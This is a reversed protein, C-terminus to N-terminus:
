RREQARRFVANPDDEMTRAIADLADVPIPRKGALYRKVTPVSLNSGAAIEDYTLRTQLRLENLEAAVASNLDVAPVTRAYM